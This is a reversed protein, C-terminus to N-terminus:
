PPNWCPFTSFRARATSARRLLASVVAFAGFLGGLTDCVPYGVRLPATKPTGTVSMM